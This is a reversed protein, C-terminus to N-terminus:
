EDCSSLLIIINYTWHEYKMQTCDLLSRSTPIGLVICRKFDLIIKHYCPKCIYLISKHPTIYLHRLLRNDIDINELDKQKTIKKIKICREILSRTYVMCIKQAIINNYDNSMSWIIIALYMVLERVFHVSYMIFLACATIM